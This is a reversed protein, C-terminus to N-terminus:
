GWPELYLKWGVSCSVPSSLMTHRWVGCNTAYITLYIMLGEWVSGVTIRGITVSRVRPRVPTKKRATVETFRGIQQGQQGAARATAVAMEEAAGEERIKTTTAVDDRRTKRGM